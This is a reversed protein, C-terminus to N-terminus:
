ACVVNGHLGGLIQATSHGGHEVLAEAAACVVFCRPVEGNRRNLQLKGQDRARAVAPAKRKACNNRNRFRLSPLAKRFRAKRSIIQPGPCLGPM